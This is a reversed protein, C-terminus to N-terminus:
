IAQLKVRFSLARPTPLSDFQIVYARKELDVDQVTGEGFVSHCIRDGVAFDPSASMEAIWKDTFGYASKAQQM